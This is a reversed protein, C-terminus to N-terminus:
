LVYGQELFFRVNHSKNNDASFKGCDPVSTFPWLLAEPSGGSLPLHRAQLVLERTVRLWASVVCHHDQVRVAVFDLGLHPPVLQVFARDLLLEHPRLKGVIGVDGETDGKSNKHARRGSWLWNLKVFM